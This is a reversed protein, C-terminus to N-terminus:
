ELDDFDSRVIAYQKVDQINGYGDIAAQRVIGEFKLGCKEMVRGSATNDLYHCAWIRNLGENHLYNM